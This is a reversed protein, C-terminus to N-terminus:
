VYLVVITSVTFRCMNGVSSEYRPVETKSNKKLLLPYGMIAGTMIVTDLKQLFIFKALRLVNTSVSPSM